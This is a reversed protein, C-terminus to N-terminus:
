ITSVRNSAEFRLGCSWYTRRGELERIDWTVSVFRGSLWGRRERALWALADGRARGHGRVPVAPGRRRRRRRHHRDVRRGPASRAPARRRKLRHDRHAHPQKPTPSSLRTEPITDSSICSLENVISTM